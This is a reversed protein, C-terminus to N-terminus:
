EGDAGGYRVSLQIGDMAAATEGRRQLLVEVENEGRRVQEPQLICELWYGAPEAQLPADPTLDEVVADNLKVQIGDDEVIDWLHLRFRLEATTGPGLDEGVQFHAHFPADPQLAVERIQDFSSGGGFNEVGFIKDKNAMTEPDGIERWVQPSAFFGNFTYIGDAGANFLNTAAARWTAM